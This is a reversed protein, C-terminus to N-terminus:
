NAGHETCHASYAAILAKAWTRVTSNRSWGPSCSPQLSYLYRVPPFTRKTAPSLEELNAQLAAAIQINDEFDSGSLVAAAELTHRDVALVEFTEMCDRVANRAKEAGRLRRGVYFVNAICLTTVAATLDKDRGAEFMAVAQQHWPARKLLVDLVINTDLLLRM